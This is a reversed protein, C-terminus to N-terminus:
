IKSLDKYINQCHHFLNPHKLKMANALSELTPSDYDEICVIKSSRRNMFDLLLVKEENNAVDLLCMIWDENFLEGYCDIICGQIYKLENYSFKYLLHPIYRLEEKKLHPFVHTQYSILQRRIRGLFKKTKAASSHRFVTQTMRLASLIGLEQAESLYM